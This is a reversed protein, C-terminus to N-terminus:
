WNYGSLWGAACAEYFTIASFVVQFLNYGQLVHKVNYAPRNKMFLPGLVRSLYIYATCLSITPWPSSMMPWGDVRKDRIIWFHDYIEMISQLTFNM